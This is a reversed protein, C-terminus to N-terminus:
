LGKSAVRAENDGKGEDLAAVWAELRADSIRMSKAEGTSKDAYVCIFWRDGSESVEYLCNIELEYYFNIITRARNFHEREVKDAELFERRLGFKNDTGTIRAIWCKNGQKGSYGKGYRLTKTM